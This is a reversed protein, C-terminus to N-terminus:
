RYILFANQMNNKERREKGETGGEERGERQKREEM